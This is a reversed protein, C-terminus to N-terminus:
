ASLFGNVQAILASFDVPKSLYGDFGLALIRARDGQMAEATVAVVPVRDFATLKRIERLLLEGGGKPLSLDTLVIAPSQELLLLGEAVDGALLVQHGQHELIHRMLARSPPDDEVVLITAQKPQADGLSAAPAISPVPLDIGQSIPLRMSFRSGHGLQSEVAMSGGHLEVLKKTLALGLGTGLARRKEETSVQEYEHFLRPLDHVAIGTGTDSVAIELEHDVQRAELTIRGGPATFKIANSLLNYLIQRFRTPDVQLPPLDAAVSLTLSLGSQDILPLLADRVAYAVEHASTPAAYVDLRGAEVKSLDLIDSILRLLHRSGTLVSELFERQRPLLPGGVGQDLLESYGVIANLPTRLEHSMNALFASKARSALEAHTKQRLADETARQASLKERQERVERLEREISTPLRALRDKMLYDNAGAKIAAVALEEGVTGSVIIFPLDLGSARVVSLAGRADFGPMSYDSIVLDWTRESLARELTDRAFVRQHDVDYGASTLARLLLLEDDLSDELLLLRLPTGM